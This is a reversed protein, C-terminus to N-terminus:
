EGTLSSSRQVALRAAPDPGPKAPPDPDLVRGGAVTERRGAERLVFSDEVDLVVPRSLTVRVFAREGSRVEAGGFLRIRADREASGAYLEYAGRSTVPHKLGRVPRIWGEFM